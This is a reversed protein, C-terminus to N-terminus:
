RLALEMEVLLRPDTSSFPMEKGNHAYGARVYLAEAPSAPVVWLRVCRHGRAEAWTRASELLSLAIGRQRFEPAVWMGGVRAVEADTRDTFTYAMGVTQGAIEALHTSQTLSTWQADTCELAGALSEGYAQPSDQLARLRLARLLPGESEDLQRVM